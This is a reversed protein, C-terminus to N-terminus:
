RVTGRDGLMSPVTRLMVWLDIWFSQREIYEIDLSVRRSVAAADELPGRSGHIAAWGTMGPKIRHRHAYEGVLRASEVSGTKMGIAHPRPGVLSMEGSIVNFLQPLEDLSTMRLIRGVRTVRADNATVQQEARADTAERRMSRFKWVVIEENNFGHRRQRFMVPGPSDLRVAIAIALFLPSLLITLPISIVLDQVRKAFARRDRDVAGNLPALPADALQKLSPGRSGDSDQDVILTVKNPLVSLQQNIQRIRLTATVDVAVVILDVYPTIKHDRLAAVDGLVPVGLLSLPSRERRDDFIGLLHLDRRALTTRILDEAYATAGVIVVNPTLWGTKRWHRVFSGWVIHLAIIGIGCRIAWITIAGVSPGDAVVATVAIACGGGVLSAVVIRLVHNAFGESRGFGYLGMSRVCRAIVFAGIIFPAAQALTTDFPSRDFTRIVSVLTATVILLLDIGRFMHSRLRVANRRRVSLLQDPRLPGRVHAHEAAHEPATVQPPREAMLSKDILM